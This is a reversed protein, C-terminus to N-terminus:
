MEDFMTLAAITDAILPRSNEDVGVPAYRREQALVLCAIVAEAAEPNIHMVSERINEAKIAKAPRGMKDATYAIIAEEIQKYAQKPDSQRTINNLRKVARRLAQSQRLQQRVKKRREREYVWLGSVLAIIPPM